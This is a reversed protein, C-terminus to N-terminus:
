ARGRVTRWARRVRLRVLVARVASCRSLVERVHGHCRMNSRCVLEDRRGMAAEDRWAADAGDPGDMTSDVARQGYLETPALWRRRAVPTRVRARLRSAVGSM